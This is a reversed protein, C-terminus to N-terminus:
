IYTNLGELRRFLSVAKLALQMLLGRFLCLPLIFNLWGGPCGGVGSWLFLCYCMYGGGGGGGYFFIFFFICKYIFEVFTNLYLAIKNVFKLESWKFVVEESWVVSNQLFRCLSWVSSSFFLFFLVFVCVFCVVGVMLNFLLPQMILFM